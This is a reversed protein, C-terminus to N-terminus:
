SHLLHDAVKISLRLYQELEDDSLASFVDSLGALHSKRLGHMRKKM